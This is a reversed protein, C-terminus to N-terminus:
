QSAAIGQPPGGSSQNNNQNFPPRGEKTFYKQDRKRMFEPNM